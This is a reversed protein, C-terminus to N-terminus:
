LPTWRLGMARALPVARSMQLRSPMTPLAFSLIPAWGWWSGFRRGETCWERAMPLSCSAWALGCCGTQRRLLPMSERALLLSSPTATPSLSARLSSFVALVLEAAFLQFYRGFRTGQGNWTTGNDNSHAISNGGSGVAVVIGGPVAALGRGRNSFVSDGKSTWVSTDPSTMISAKDAAIYPVGVVIYSSGTYIGTFAATM